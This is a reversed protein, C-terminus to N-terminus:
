MARAMALGIKPLSVPGGDYVLFRDEWTPEFKSKYSASVKSLPSGGYM